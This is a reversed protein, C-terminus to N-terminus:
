FFNFLNQPFYNLLPILKKNPFVAQNKLWPRTNDFIILHNKFFLPM